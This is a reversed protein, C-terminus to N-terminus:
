KKRTASEKKIADILKKIEVVTSPECCWSAAKNKEIRKMKFDMKLIQTKDINRMIKNHGTINQRVHRKKLQLFVYKIRLASFFYQTKIKSFFM